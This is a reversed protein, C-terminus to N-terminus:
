KGGKCSKVLKDELLIACANDARQRDASDKEDLFDKRFAKDALCRKIISRARPFAWRDPPDDLPRLMVDYNEIENCMPLATDVLVSVLPLARALGALQKTTKVFTFMLDKDKTPGLLKVAADVCREQIEDQDLMRHQEGDATRTTEVLHDLRMCREFGELDKFAFVDARAEAASAAVIVLVLWRGHTSM